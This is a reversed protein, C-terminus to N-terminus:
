KESKFRVFFFLCFITEWDDRLCMFLQIEILFNECRLFNVKGSSKWGTIFYRGLSPTPPPIPSFFFNVTYLNLETTFKWLM